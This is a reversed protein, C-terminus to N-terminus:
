KVRVRSFSTTGSDTLLAIGGATLTPLRGTSVEAIEGDLVNKGDVFGIAENGHVALKLEHVENLPWDYQVAAIVDRDEDYQRVLQVERAIRNYVLAVYRYLGGYRVALGARDALRMAMKARIAYDVWDMSGTHLLGVGRNSVLTTNPGWANRYTVGCNGIWGLFSGQGREPTLADSFDVDPAGSWDIWDVEVIGSGGAPGDIRLGLQAIPWGNTNPMTWRIRSTKGKALKVEKSEAYGTLIQKPESAADPNRQYYRVFLRASIREGAAGILAATLTQGSYITPTAALSYGGKARAIQDPLLFTPTSVLVPKGPAVKIFQVSLRKDGNTVYVHDETAVCREPLFGHQAGVQSFHFRAGNKPAPPADWEMVGRGLRAILDAQLLVDSIGHTGEATPIVVRDAFPRQWDPGASIGALGDKIGMLCGVNGSNCDTDWGATNAIMLSKQFDDPAHAWAMVMVAHNPVMHCGGGYTDYGYKAQIKRLTARWNDGFKKAWGRVDHHIRAILCDEPMVSLGVDLLTDMNSEDFAAAEMAAVAQAAYVAEGDHSVRAAEGALKAALDPDGPAVMGFGDIFIQAGIQEAVTLGNMGISGSEPAPVGAALRLWATHETSVGMGGWWLVTQHEILYNLWSRGIQEATIARGAQHDEIARPFTLTGSIDDDACVLPYNLRNHVYYWIEGLRAEIDANSWGEVPKGLYVGIVKGLVGAYVKEAYNKPESNAM